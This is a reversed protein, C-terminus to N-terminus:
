TIWATCDAAEDQQADLERRWVWEWGACLFARCSQSRQIGKNIKVGEPVFVLDSTGKETVPSGSWWLPWLRFATVSIAGPKHRRSKHFLMRYTWFQIGDSHCFLKGDLSVVKLLMGGSLRGHIHCSVYIWVSPMKRCKSLLQRQWLMWADKGPGEQCGVNRYLKVGHGLGVDMDFVSSEEEHM